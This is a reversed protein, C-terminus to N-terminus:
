DPGPWRQTMNWLVLSVLAVAGGIGAIGAIAGLFASGFTRTLPDLTPRLPEPLPGGQAVYHLALGVLVAFGGAVLQLRRLWATDRRGSDRWPKLDRPRLGFGVAVEQATLESGSMCRSAGTEAGLRFVATGEMLFAIRGAGPSADAPTRSLALAVSDVVRFVRAFYRPALEVISGEQLLDVSEVPSTWDTRFLLLRDPLVTLTSSSGSGTRLLLESVLEGSAADRGDRRDIVTVTDGRLRGASGIELPFTNM